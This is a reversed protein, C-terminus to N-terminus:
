KNLREVSRVILVPKGKFKSEFNPQLEWGIEREVDKPTMRQVVGTVRAKNNKWQDDINPFSGVKPILALLGRNADGTLSPDEILKFARPSYVEDITAVVTVAKGVTSNPAGTIDAVSHTAGTAAASPPYTESNVVPTATMGRETAGDHESTDCSSGFLALAIFATFFIATRKKM